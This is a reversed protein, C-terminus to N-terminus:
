FRYGRGHRVRHRCANRFAKLEGSDTRILIVSGQLSDYALYQGVASLEDERGVFHWCRDFIREQERNFFNPDTYCRAPLTHA